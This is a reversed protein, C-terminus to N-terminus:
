TIGLVATRNTKTLYYRSCYRLRRHVDCVGPGINGDEIDGCCCNSDHRALFGPTPFDRRSSESSTENPIPVRKTASCDVKSFRGLPTHDVSDDLQTLQHCTPLMAEKKHSHQIITIRKKKDRDAPRINHQFICRNRFPPDTGIKKAGDVSSVRM